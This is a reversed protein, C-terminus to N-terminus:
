PTMNHTNRVQLQDSKLFRRELRSGDPLKIMIRIADENSAEPEEPIREARSIKEQAIRQLSLGLLRLMNVKEVTFVVSFLVLTM